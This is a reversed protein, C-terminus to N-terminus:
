NNCMNCRHEFVSTMPAVLATAQFSSTDYDYNHNAHTFLHTESAEYLLQKSVAIVTKLVRTHSRTVAPNEWVITTIFVFPTLKFISDCLLLINDFTFDIDDYLLLCSESCCKDVSSCGDQGVAVCGGAAVEVEVFSDEINRPPPVVVGGRLLLNSFVPKVAAPHVEGEDLMIAVDDAITIPDTATATNITNSFVKDASPINM